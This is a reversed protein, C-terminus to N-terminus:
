GNNVAKVTMWEVTKDPAVKALIEARKNVANYNETEVRKIDTYQEALPLIAEAQDVLKAYAADDDCNKIAMMLDFLTDCMATTNKSSM